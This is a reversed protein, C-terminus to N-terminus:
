TRIDRKNNEIKQTVFVFSFLAAAFRLFDTRTFFSVYLDGDDGVGVDGGGGILYWRDFKLEILSIRLSFDADWKPSRSLSSLVSFLSFTFVSTIAISQFLECMAHLHFTFLFFVCCCRDDVNMEFNTSLFHFRILFFLILVFGVLVFSVSYFQLM